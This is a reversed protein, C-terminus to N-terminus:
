GVKRMEIVKHLMRNISNGDAKNLMDTLKRFEEATLQSRSSKGCHYYALCKQKSDSLDRKKAIAFFRAREKNIDLSCHKSQISTETASQRNEEALKSWADPLPPAQQSRNSDYSRSSDKTYSSQKKPPEIDNGDSDEETALGLASSLSFRRAYTMATGVQHGSNGKDALTIIVADFFIYEGSTHLLLTSVGVSNQERYPNQVFSLGCRKMPQRIEKIIEDLSAYKSRFAPNTSTKSVNNVISQFEALATALNAISDSMKM